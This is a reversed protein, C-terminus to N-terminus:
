TIMLPYMVVSSSDTFGFLYVLNDGVIIPPELYGLSAIDYMKHLSGDQICLSILVSENSHIFYVLGKPHLSPSISFYINPEGFM